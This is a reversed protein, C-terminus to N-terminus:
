GATLGEIVYELPVSSPVWAEPLVSNSALAVAAPDTSDLLTVRPIEIAIM